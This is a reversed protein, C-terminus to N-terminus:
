QLVKIMYNKNKPEFSYLVSNWTHQWNVGASANMTRVASFFPNHHTSSGALGLVHVGHCVALDGWFTGTLESSRPVLGLMHGIEHAALRAIGDAVRNQVRRENFTTGPVPDSGNAIDLSGTGIWVTGTNNRQFNLRDYPAQGGIGGPSNGQINLTTIKTVGGSPFSAFVINAGYFEGALISRVQNRINNATSSSFANALITNAASSWNLRIFQTSAQGSVQYQNSHLSSGDNYQCTMQIKNAITARAAVKGAGDVGLCASFPDVTRWNTFNGAPSMIAQVPVPSEAVRASSPGNIQCVRVPPPYFIPACDNCFGPDHNIDWCRCEVGYFIECEICCNLARYEAPWFMISSPQEFHKKYDPSDLETLRLRRWAELALEDPASFGNDGTLAFSMSSPEFHVAGYASRRTRNFLVELGSSFTTGAARRLSTAPRTKADYQLRLDAEGPAYAYTLEEGMATHVGILRDLADYQFLMTEEGEGDDARLRLLNGEADYDMAFSRRGFYEIGVIRQQDDLTLQNGTITGDVNTVRTRTISGTPNHDYEVRASHGEGYDFVTERRLGLADYYYHHSSGDSFVSRALKGDPQYELRTTAGSSGTVAVIQGDANHEFRYSEGGPLRAEVVDGQPSYTYRREGDASQRTLLNGREDYTLTMVPRQGDATVELLRGRSDYSYSKSDRDSARVMRTLESGSYFLLTETRGNRKIRRVRHSADLDVQSNVGLANDVAVTIGARNQRYTSTQGKGDVVVTESGRFGFSYFADPLAVQSVRGAADYVVTFTESGMPDWAQVLRGEAGYAYRWAYDGMDLVTELHGGAGYRYFIQRGQDDSISAIRGAADRQLRVHRGNQGRLEALRGDVYGLEVSNGNRDEVRTLRYREGLRRFGKVMGDRLELRLGDEAPTLAVVDQPGSPSLRFGDGDPVFRLESASEDVYLFGGGQPRLTEAATLHWGPGFDEGSALTSDYARAIVLPIRGVTVLDRRQFTLNGRGVNVYGVQVGYHNAQENAFYVNMRRRESFENLIDLYTDLSEEALVPTPLPLLWALSLLATLALRSPSFRSKSQPEM